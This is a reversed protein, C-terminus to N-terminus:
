CVYSNMKIVNQYFQVWQRLIIMDSINISRDWIFGCVCIFYLIWENTMVLHVFCFWPFLTVFFCQILYGNWIQQLMLKTNRFLENWYQKSVRQERRGKVRLLVKTRKRREKKREEKKREMKYKNEKEQRM